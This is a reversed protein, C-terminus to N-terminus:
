HMRMKGWDIYHDYFEKDERGLYWQPDGANLRSIAGIRTVKSQDCRWIERAWEEVEDALQRAYAYSHAVIWIREIPNNLRYALTQLKLKTTRGSKSRQSQESQKAKSGSAKFSKINEAVRQEQYTNPDQYRLMQALQIVTWRSM